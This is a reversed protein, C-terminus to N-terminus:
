VHPSGHLPLPDSGGSGAGGKSGLPPTKESARAEDPYGLVYASGLRRLCLLLSLDGSNRTNGARRAVRRSGRRSACSPAMGASGPILVEGTRRRFPANWTCSPCCATLACFIRSPLLWSSPWSEAMMPLKRRFCTPSLWGSIRSLAHFQESGSRGCREAEM